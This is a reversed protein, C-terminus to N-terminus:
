QYLTLHLLAWVVFDQPLFPLYYVSFLVLLISVLVTLASIFKM